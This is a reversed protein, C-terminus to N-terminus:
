SGEHNAQIITIVLLLARSENLPNYLTTGYFVTQTM